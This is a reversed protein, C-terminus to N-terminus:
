ISAWFKRACNLSLFGWSVGIELCVAIMESMKRRFKGKWVRFKYFTVVRLRSESKLYKLSIFSLFFDNEDREPRGELFLSLQIAISWFANDFKHWALMRATARIGHMSVCIAQIHNKNYERKATQEGNTSASKATHEGKTYIQRGMIKKEWASITRGM